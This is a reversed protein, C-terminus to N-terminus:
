GSGEILDRVRRFVGPRDGEEAVVAQILERQKATLKRPVTVQLHVVLDGKGSRQVRPLGKGRLVVTDGPQAGAPVKLKEAGGLTPVELEAGLAARFASIEQELHLDAGDRVFLEHPEVRVIVYLDGAPGGHVGAEGEGVMRLRTGDEIGAPVTVKLQRRREVRGAGRCEQCPNSVKRGAGGCDPCPRVMTFFGQSVRVQGRGGCSRCTEAKAGPALGSGACAECSEERPVTLLREVGVAMEAFSIAISTRLDSGREPGGRRRGGFFGEFGFINGLIDAFDGFVSSDFGSFPQEGLGAQGFRDYRARKDSDSLVAYAEAAEKFREEAQADGPNRDPHYKVALKRYAAKIEERAAGHGIGLVEYYDRASM